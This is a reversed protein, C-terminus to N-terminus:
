WLGDKLRLSVWRGLNGLIIHDVFRIGVVKGAAALNRTVILDEQSPAPTGTPHSHFIVIGLAGVLLGVKLYMRPEIVMRDAVGRYFLKECILGDRRDLYLAGAVEQDPSYYKLILYEALADKRNLIRREPIRRRAIRVSYELLMEARSRIGPPLAAIRDRNHHLGGSDMIELAVHLHMGTLGALIQADHLHFTGRHHEVGIPDHAAPRVPESLPEVDGESTSAEALDWSPIPKTRTM